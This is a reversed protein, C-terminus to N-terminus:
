KPMQFNNSAKISIPLNTISSVNGVYNVADQNIYSIEGIGNCFWAPYPMTELLYAPDSSDSKQDLIENAQNFHRAVEKENRLPLHSSESSNAELFLDLTSLFETCKEPNIAVAYTKEILALLANNSSSRSLDKRKSVKM